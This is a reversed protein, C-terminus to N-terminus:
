VEKEQEEYFLQDPKKKFIQAITYAQEYSLKRKRNELQSYYSPSMNLKKGMEVVTYGKKMRLEKLKKYM